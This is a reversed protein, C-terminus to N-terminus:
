INGKLIHEYLNWWDEFLLDYNWNYSDMITFFKDEEGIEVFREYVKDYRRIDKAQKSTIKSSRAESLIKSYKKAQEYIGHQIANPASPIHVIDVTLLEYETIIEAEEAQSYESEGFGRTSFALPIKDELLPIVFNIGIPTRVIKSRSHYDNGKSEMNTILHSVYDYNIQDDPRTQGDPHGLEGLAIKKDIFDTKYKEVADKLVNSPYIRGNGNKVDAQAAIGELYWNKSSDTESKESVSNAYNKTTEYIIKKDPKQNSKRLINAM